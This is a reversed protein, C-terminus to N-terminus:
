EESDTSLRPSPLVRGAGFSFSRVKGSRGKKMQITGVEFTRIQPVAVPPPPQILGPVPGPSVTALLPDGADLVSPNIVLGLGPLGLGPLDLYPVGLRGFTWTPLGACPTRPTCFDGRAVNVFVTGGPLRIGLHGSQWFVDHPTSGLDLAWRSQGGAFARLQRQNVAYVARHDAVVHTPSAGLGVRWRPRGDDGHVRLDGTSSVRISVGGELEPAELSFANPAAMLAAVLAPLM